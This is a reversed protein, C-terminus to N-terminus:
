SRKLRKVWGRAVADHDGQLEGGALASDIEGALEKGFEVGFQDFPNLNWIVSQVFVKHEYLALLAGLRRADLRDLMILSSPRNGPFLKFPLLDLEGKGELESLVDDETRGRNLAEMQALANSLVAERHEPFEDEEEAVAIVDLPVWGTGQHLQQFFAHQANMGVNGWVVPATRYDVQQGERDVRKGNSEMELQQLYDPLLDLANSYPLVAHTNADFFNINWIGVLALLKPLNERPGASRFHRDMARAGALLEEFCNRGLRIVIPLGVSSWVSYRGGLSDDFHLQHEGPIGFKNMADSNASIGIFQTDLIENTDVGRQAALWDRMTDANLVTEATTFSKSVVVVLTRQPNLRSLLRKLTRPDATSLFHMQPGGGDQDDLAEIILEPGLHSGGIGIHVIDTFRDGAPSAFSGDRIAEALELMRKRQASIEQLVNDDAVGDTEDARHAIHLASRGETHNVKEGRWLAETAEPLQCCRLLEILADLIEDDIRHRSLDLTIGAAEFLYRGARDPDADLVEALRRGRWANRLERLRLWEPSGTISEM